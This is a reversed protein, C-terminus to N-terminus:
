NVRMKGAEGSLPGTEEPHFKTNEMLTYNFDSLFILTLPSEQLPQTSRTLKILYTARIIIESKTQCASLKSRKRSHYIM